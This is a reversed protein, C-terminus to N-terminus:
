AAILRGFFLTPVFCSFFFATVIGLIRLFAIVPAFTAFSESVPASTLSADRAWTGDAAVAVVAPLAPGLPVAPPPSAAVDACGVMRAWATPLALMTSATPAAPRRFASIAATEVVTANSGGFMGAWLQVPREAAAGPACTPSTMTIWGTLLVQVFRM